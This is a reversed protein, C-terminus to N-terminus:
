LHLRSHNGSSSRSRLHSSSRCRNTTTSFILAIARPPSRSRSPWTQPRLRSLWPSSLSVAGSIAGRERKENITKEWNPNGTTGKWQTNPNFRIAEGPGSQDAGEGNKKWGVLIKPKYPRNWNIGNLRKKIIWKNM